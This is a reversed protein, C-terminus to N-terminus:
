DSSALVARWAEGVHAHGASDSLQGIFKICAHEGRRDATERARALGHLAEVLADRSRGAAALGVAHALATRCRDGGNRARDAAGRLLRLAGGTHGRALTAMAELRDALATHKSEARFRAVLADLSRPDGERLASVAHAVAEAADDTVPHQAGATAEAPAEPSSPPMSELEADELAVPPESAAPPTSLLDGSPLPPARPVADLGPAAAPESPLRLPPYSSRDRGPSGVAEPPVVSPAVSHLAARSASPGGPLVSASLRSMLGVPNRSEAFTVLARATRDLGASRAARAAMAALRAARDLEGALAAHAAAAARALPRDSEEIMRSAARHWEVASKASLAEVLVDRHTASPLAVADAGTPVVWGRAELFVRSGDLDVPVNAVRRVLEEVEHVPADGGLVALATLVSQHAGDLLAFRKTIWHRAPRPRGRGGARVRSTIAGDALVLEATELSCALAERIAGPLGAGRKGWRRASSEDLAGGLLGRALEASEASSLAGLRVEPGEPMEDLPQPVEDRLGLRVVVRYGAGQTAGVVIAELSDCDLDTADDVLVAGSATDDAAPALWVAILEGAEETSLGRGALLRDLREASDGPLVIPGRAAGRDREFACRLAGLPETAPHPTVLMVRAADLSGALEALFRTGGAGREARVVGVTGARVMMEALVPSRAVLDSVQLRDIASAEVTRFPHELDVIAGRVRGTGVRGIRHGRTLLEGRSVEHMAPDALAEGERAVRALWSAKLLAPGWGLAVTSGEPVDLVPELEGRAVGASLGSMADADGALLEVADELSDPAFDFVVSSAGWAVVRAGLATARKTLLQMARHHDADTVTRAEVRRSRVAVIFREPM